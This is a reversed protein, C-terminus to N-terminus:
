NYVSICELVLLTSSFPVLLCTTVPPNNDGAKDKSIFPLIDTPLDQRSFFFTQYLLSLLLLHQLVIMTPSLVCLWFPKRGTSSLWPLLVLSFMSLNPLPLQFKFRIFWNFKDQRKAEKIKFVWNILKVILSLLKVCDVCVLFGFNGLNYFTVLAIALINWFEVSKCVCVSGYQREKKPFRPLSIMCLILLLNCRHVPPFTSNPNCNCSKGAYM